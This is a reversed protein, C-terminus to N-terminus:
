EQAKSYKLLKKVVVKYKKGADEIDERFVDTVVVRSTTGAARVVVIDDKQINQSRIV